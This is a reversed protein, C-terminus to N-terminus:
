KCFTKLFFKEKVCNANEKNSSMRHSKIFKESEFSSIDQTLVLQFLNSFCSLVHIKRLNVQKDQSFSKLKLSFSMIKCQGASICFLIVSTKM